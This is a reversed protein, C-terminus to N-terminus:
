MKELKERILKVRPSEGKDLKAFSNAAFQGYEKTCYIKELGSVIYRETVILLGNTVNATSILLVLNSFFPNEVETASILLTDVSILIEKKMNALRLTEEKDDSVINVVSKSISFLSSSLSAMKRIEAESIGMSCVNYGDATCLVACRVTTLRSTINQMVPLALEGTKKTLEWNVTQVASTHDM